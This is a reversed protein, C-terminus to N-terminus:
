AWRAGAAMWTHSPGVRRARQLVRGPPEPEVPDGPDILDPAPAERAGDHGARDHEVRALVDGAEAIRLLNGGALPRTEVVLDHGMRQPPRDGGDLRGLNVPEVNVTGGEFRHTLGHHREIRERVEDQDVGERNWAEPDRLSPDEM